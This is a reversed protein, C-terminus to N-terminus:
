GDTAGPAAFHGALALMELNRLVWSPADAATEPTYAPYRMCLAHLM